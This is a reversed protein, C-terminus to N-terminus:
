TEKNYAKRDHTDETKKWEAPRSRTLRLESYLLFLPLLGFSFLFGLATALVRAMPKLILIATLIISLFGCALLLLFPCSLFAIALGMAYLPPYIIYVAFNFPFILTGYTGFERNLLMDQNRWLTQAIGAARRSKREIMGRLSVPLWEVVDASSLFIARYGKRRARVAIWSDDGLSDRPIIDFVHKRLALLPGNVVIVSDCRSELSRISDFYKRYGREISGFLGKDSECRVRGTIVGIDQDRMAELVREIAGAGLHSDCDTHIVLDHEINALATNVADAKGLGDQFLFIIKLNPHQEIYEHIVEMTDDSSHGDIILIQAKDHLIKFKSLSDIKDGLVPGENLTPIFVTVFQVQGKPRNNQVRTNALITLLLMYIATGIPWLLVILVGLWFISVIAGGLIDHEQKDEMEHRTSLIELVLISYDILM